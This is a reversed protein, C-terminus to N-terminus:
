MSIGSVKKIAEIWYHRHSLDSPFQYYIVVGKTKDASNPCYNVACRKVM